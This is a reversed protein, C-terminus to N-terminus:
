SSLQANPTFSEYFTLVHLDHGMRSLFLYGKFNLQSYNYKEPPCIVTVKYALSISYLFRMKNSAPILIYWFPPYCQLRAKIPKDFESYRKSNIESCRWRLVILLNINQELQLLALYRRCNTFKPRRWLFKRYNKIKYLLIRVFAFLCWCNCREIIPCYKRKSETLVHM